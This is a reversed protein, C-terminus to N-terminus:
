CIRPAILMCVDAADVVKSDLFEGFM